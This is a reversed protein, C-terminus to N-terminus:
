PLTRRYLELTRVASQRADFFRAIRDKAKVGMQVRLSEDSLLRNLAEALAAPYPEVTLGTEGDRNVYTVGTNLAATVLPIASCAAELLVLGFAEAESDSPLVFVDAAGYYAKLLADGVRGEFFVRDNVRLSKAHAQLHAREPGDGVICLVADIHLMATILATLGKYYALRGCFLVLHGSGARQRRIQKSLARSQATPEWCSIDVGAPIVAIKGAVDSLEQSRALQPSFCIVAAARRLLRRHVALYPRRLLLRRLIPMHYTVVIPTQRVARLLALEGWPFPVHCHILDADLEQIWRTLGVTVPASALVALTTARVVRFRDGKEVGCRGSHSRGVLVDIQLTSDITILDTALQLMHREVGGVHPPFFKGVM